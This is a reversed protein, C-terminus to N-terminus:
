LRRSAGGELAKEDAQISQRSVQGLVAKQRAVAKELQAVRRKLDANSRKLRANDKKLGKTAANV